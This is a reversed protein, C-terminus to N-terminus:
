DKKWFAVLEKAMREPEDEEVAHGSEAFISFKFKSQEQAKNMEDDIFGHGGLILLKATKAALFKQSLGDFWTTWLPESALPDTRWVYASGDSTRTVMGPFSARASEVNRVTDSQVGWKIAQEVTECTTPRRECWLRVNPLAHPKYLEIMDLVAIASVSPVLNKYAVDTVVAGGMSHGVLFIEPMTEEQSPGYLTVLVNQLDQSLRDIHLNTQDRSTTEGHGRADISVIRAQDGVLKRLERGTAAFSLACHGVGHHLVIVPLDKRDRNIEYVTFTIESADLAIPVAVQRKTEFFETWDLPSFSETDSLSAVSPAATSSNNNTTM